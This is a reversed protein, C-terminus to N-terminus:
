ILKAVDNGRCQLWCGDYDNKEKLPCFEIKELHTKFSRHIYKAKVRLITASIQFFNFFAFILGRIVFYIRSINLHLM